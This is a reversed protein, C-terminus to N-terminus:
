TSQLRCVREPQGRWILTGLAPLGWPWPSLLRAGNGSRVFHDQDTSLRLQTLVSQGSDQMGGLDQAANM